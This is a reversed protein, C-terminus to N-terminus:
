DAPLHINFVRWPLMSGLRFVVPKQQQVRVAMMCAANVSADNSLGKRMKSM